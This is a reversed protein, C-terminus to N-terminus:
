REGQGVPESYYDLKDCLEMFQEAMHLAVDLDKKNLTKRKGHCYRLVKQFSKVMQQNM